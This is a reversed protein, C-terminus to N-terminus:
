GPLLPSRIFTGQPLMPCLLLGLCNPAPLVVSPVTALDQGENEPPREGTLATLQTQGRLAFQFCCIYSSEKKKKIEKGRGRKEKKRKCKKKKQDIPFVLGSGFVYGVCDFM